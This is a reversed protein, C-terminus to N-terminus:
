GCARWESVVVHHQAAAQSVVGVDRVVGSAWGSIHEEVHQYESVGGVHGWDFGEENASEGGAHSNIIHFSHNCEVGGNLRMRM